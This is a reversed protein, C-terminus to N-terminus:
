PLVLVDAVFEWEQESCITIEEVTGDKEIRLITTGASDAAYVTDGDLSLRAPSGGVPVVRVGMASAPEYVAIAGDEVGFRGTCAVFVNEGRGVAMSPNTCEEGLDILEQKGSSLEYSWLRGNGAPAWTEDLNNLAVYVHGGAVAVGAPNAKGELGTSDIEIPTKAEGEDAGVEIPLLGDSALLSVYLTGDALDAMFPNSGEGTSVAYAVRPKKPDQLDVAAVENTGSLVVYARAGEVIVHNPMVSGAGEAFTLQGVVKMQHRDVVRLVQDIGGVVVVHDEDLRAMTQPGEMGSLSTGTRLGNEKSLPVMQGGQFCLGFLDPSTRACDEQGEPCGCSGEICFEGEACAIGCGGCHMPDHLTDVCVGDCSEEEAPCLAEEEACGSAFLLFLSFLSVHFIRNM